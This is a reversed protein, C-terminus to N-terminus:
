AFQSLLNKAFTKREETVEVVVVGEQPQGYLVLANLPAFLILPLTLLDEEGAVTLTQPSGTQLVQLLMEYLAEGVDGSVTGAPNTLSSTVDPFYTAKSLEDIEQRQERFDVIRLAALYGAKQLNIATSDGVAFILSTQNLLKNVKRISPAVTGLPRQLAPRLREPLQYHKKQLFFKLYSHGERDIEGGRIRESSIIKDDDGHVFPVRIIALPPFHRKNREQNVLTGNAATAETVLLVDLDNTNLTIGYIDSLPLITARELVDQSKFYAALQEHREDYPQISKAFRKHHSLHALSLGISVKEAQQFAAMLLHKHGRHLHDFTGGLVAHRYSYKM